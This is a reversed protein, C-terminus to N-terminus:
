NGNKRSFLNRTEVKVEEGHWSYRDIDPEGLSRFQDIFQKIVKDDIYSTNVTCHVGIVGPRYHKVSISPRMIAIDSLAIQKIQDLASESFVENKSEYVMDEIENYRAFELTRMAVSFYRSKPYKISPFRFDVWVWPFEPDYVHNCWYIGNGCEADERVLKM